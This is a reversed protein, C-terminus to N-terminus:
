EAAQGYDLHLGLVDIAQEPNILLGFLTAFDLPNPPELRLSLPATGHPVDRIFQEIATAMTQVRADGAIGLDVLQGRLEGVLREILGELSQQEEAAVTDLVTGIFGLDQYRLEAHLIGSPIASPDDMFLATMVDDMYLGAVRLRLDIQGLDVFEVWSHALDFLGTSEDLTYALQMNIVLQELGLAKIWEEEDLDELPVVLGQVTTELYAPPSDRVIADWDIREVIWRDVSLVLPEGPIDDSLRLDEVIFGQEGLPQASSWSLTGPPATTAIALLTDYASLGTIDIWPEPADHDYEDTDTWRPADASIFVHAPATGGGFTGVWVAYAGPSGSLTVAPHYQYTDDNCLWEGEPTHVVLTTDSDSLAYVSPASVRGDLEIVVDPQEANIYGTCGLGLGDAQDSGGALLAIPYPDPEFDRTFRVTEYLPPATVEFRPIIQWQPNLESILLRAPQFEELSYLGVWIAYRGPAPKSIEVLPNYGYSDDNCLWDGNPARVVLTTDAEAIAYINLPQRPRNFTLTADPADPNIYGVCDSGLSRADFYGGADLHIVQPDPMFGASLNLDAYVGSAQYNQAMVAMSSGLLLVAVTSVIKNNIHM